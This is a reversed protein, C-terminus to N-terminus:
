HPLNSNRFDRPPTGFRAKFARSFHQSDSFGWSHAIETISRGAQAPDLLQQRCHELRRNWIQRSLTATDDAFLKHLTRKSYGLADAIYSIDLDPNALNREVFNMVAIRRARSTRSGATLPDAQWAMNIMHVLVDGLRARDRRGLLTAASIAANASEHLVNGAGQLFGQPLILAHSTCHWGNIRRKPLSLALQRTTGASDTCYPQNKDIACWQGATLTITKGCQELHCEGEEQFLFKISGDDNRTPSDNELRHEGLIVSCLRLEGLDCGRISAERDDGLVAYPARTVNQWQMSREHRNAAKTAFSLYDM